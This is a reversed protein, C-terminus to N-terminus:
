FFLYVSVVVAYLQYKLDFNDDGAKLKHNHYDIFEGDIV